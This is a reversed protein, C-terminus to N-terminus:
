GPVSGVLDTGFPGVGAPGPSAPGASAPDVLGTPSPVIGMSSIVIPETPSLDPDLDEILARNRVVSASQWAEPASQSPQPVVEPAQLVPQQGDLAPKPGAVAANLRAHRSPDEIRRLAMRRPVRERRHSPM